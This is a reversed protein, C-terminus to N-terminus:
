LFAFKNGPLKTECMECHTKDATNAFTCQPCSNRSEGSSLSSEDQGLRSHSCIICVNTSAANLATCSRCHWPADTFDMSRAARAQSMEQALLSPSGGTKLSGSRGTSSIRSRRLSPESDSALPIMLIESKGSGHGNSTQGNMAVGVMSHGYGHRRLAGNLNTNVGGKATTATTEPDPGDIVDEGIGRFPVASYPPKLERPPVPPAVSTIAHTQIPHTLVPRRMHVGLTSPDSIGHSDVEHPHSITRSSSEMSSPNRSTLALHHPMVEPGTRYGQDVFSPQHLIAQNKNPLLSQPDANFIYRASPKSLTSMDSAIGEDILSNDVATYTAHNKMGIYGPPFTLASQKNSGPPVTLQSPHFWAMDDFTNANQSNPESSTNDMHKSSRHGEMMKLSERMHDETTGEPLVPLIEANSDGIYSLNDDVIVPPGASPIRGDPIGAPVMHQYQPSSSNYLLGDHLSNNWSLSSRSPMFPHQQMQQHSLASSPLTTVESIGNVHPSERKPPIAPPQGIVPGGTKLPFVRNKPSLTSFLPDKLIDTIADGVSKDLSRLKKYHEEINLCLSTAMRCDFALTLLTDRHIPRKLVLLTKNKDIDYGALKFINEPEPLVSKIKTRYFGGYMKLKKFEPKWPQEVLLIFYLELNSFAKTVPQVDGNNAAPKKLAQTLVDLIQVFYFLKSTLKAGKIAIYISNKVSSELESDKQDCESWSSKRDRFEKYNKRAKGIPDM